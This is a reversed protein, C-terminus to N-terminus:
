LRTHAKMLSATLRTSSLGGEPIRQLLAQPVVEACAEALAVRAGSDYPDALLYALLQYGPRYNSAIEHYDEWDIGMPVLPIGSTLDGYREMEMRCMDALPFYRDEFRTAFAAIQAAPTSQRLIERKREPVFERVLKVFGQYEEAEEFRSLLASLSPPGQSLLKAALISLPTEETVM